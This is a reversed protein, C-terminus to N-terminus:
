WCLNEKFHFEEQCTASMACSSNTPAATTPEGTTTAITPEAVVSDSPIVTANGLGEYIVQENIVDM